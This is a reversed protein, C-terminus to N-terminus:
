TYLQLLVYFQCVEYDKVALGLDKHVMAIYGLIYDRKSPKDYYDIFLACMIDCINSFKKNIKAEQVFEPISESEFFKVYKPHNRFIRRIRQCILTM